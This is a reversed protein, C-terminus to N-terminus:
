DLAVRSLPRLRVTTHTHFAWNLAKVADTFRVKENSGSSNLVVGIVTHGGRRAAFLLCYGAATTHGTKIGLMGPYAGLLRNTTKWPYSHGGATKASYTAKAVVTRFAQYKMATRALTIQDRATSYGATASPWPLGDFNAYHTHKMGLKVAQANMKKVFGSWGPGYSDALAYAADCGSPLMMAYLLQGVTVKDGAALNASSGGYKKVYDLYKRGISIKRDLHGAKIVVLATMVKTISGVPRKTDASRTWLTRGATSDFLYASKAAIGAPAAVAVRAVPQAVPQVVPQLVPSRTVTGAQAVATPAVVALALVVSAVGLRRAQMLGRGVLVL